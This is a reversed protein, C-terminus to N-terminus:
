KARTTPLITPSSAPVCSFLQFYFIFRFLQPAVREAMSFNGNSIGELAKFVFSTKPTRFGENRCYTLRDSFVLNLACRRNALHGSHWLDCPSALFGLALEFMEDFPRQPRGGTELKEALVLKERELDAIRHEYATIVSPTSAEVIRDLLHAIQKEAKDINRRVAARIATTESRRRDWADKFMAKAM